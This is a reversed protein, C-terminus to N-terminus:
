SEKPKGKRLFLVGGAVNILTLLLFGGREEGLMASIANTNLNIERDSAELHANVADIAKQQQLLTQNQVATAVELGQVDALANTSVQSVQSQQAYGGCAGYGCLAVYTFFCIFALKHRM